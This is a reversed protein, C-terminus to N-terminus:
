EFKAQLAQKGEAFKGQLNRTSLGPLEGFNAQIADILAQQTAFKSYPQGSPSSGPLLGVLAGIINLYASKQKETIPHHHSQPERLKSLEAELEVIRHKLFLMEAEEAARQENSIVTRKQRLREGAAFSALKAAIDAEGELYDEEFASGLNIGRAALWEALAFVELYTASSRIADDIDRIINASKLSG